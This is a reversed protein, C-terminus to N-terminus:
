KKKPTTTKKQNKKADPNEYKLDVTAGLATIMGKAGEANPGNPALQLYTQFAEATGEPAKMKGDATTTAKAILCMGYQYHAEAYNPDATIAQKFVSEAEGYNGANVLLAGLNFYYKGANPPDLTAAKTLQEKAEPFKKGKALLLAYNNIYGADAPNLEIAKNYADYAKQFLAPDAGPKTAQGAYAEALNGYIVHQKPDMEVAKNFQEVAADYNKESLAQRGANFADNLAKNKALAASREKMQKELAEKQEKSMGREVEKTIEGTQAAKEMAERQRKQASLDFNIPVPDGLRTRVGKISDADKGDMVVTVDYTGLPLGAHFYHGKKDTKTKYTGKIDTRNIRVEVGKPAAKGDEDKVDGEIAGTQAMAAAAFLVATGALTILRKAFMTTFGGTM